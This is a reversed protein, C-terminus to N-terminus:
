PAATGPRTRLWREVSPGQALRFAQCLAGAEVSERLRRETGEVSGLREALFVAAEEGATEDCLGEPVRVLRRAVFPSVELPMAPLRERLWAYTASATRRDTALPVLLYHLDQQKVTGDEWLGLAERVRMPEVVAALGMLATIRQQPTEAAGLADRLRAFLAPEGGRATVRLAAVALDPDVSTPDALWQSALVALRARAPADEGLWALQEIARQRLLREEAPESPSAEWSLREVLPALQERVFRAYGPRAPEGVVRDLAVLADLLQDWVVREDGLSYEGVLELYRDATLGGSQVLAWTNVLLGARETASLEGAFRALDHLHRPRMHFRYYGAEGANPHLWRPCGLRDLSVERPDVGVLECQVRTHAGESADPSVPAEDTPYRLCVPTKWGKAAKGRPVGAGIPRAEHQSLLVRPPLGPACDLQEVDVRPVGTQTVFGTAVEGVPLGSARELARFLDASTASGWAHASVYERVGRRFPEPGVWHELMALVSEGKAYTIGDFAEHAESSTRVPQRVSRASQMWDLGMVWHKGRLLDTGAGLGPDWTDLVKRALWNAFAENLWLDDWWALTVLDGFWMHALEHAVVQAMLRRDRTSAREADHLVIEERFTVLGVNEMAGPGFNPVALLDLKGYPYPVGFYETLLALHESAAAAAARGLQSKGPVTIVRIPVPAAPGEYVELPGVAFALLYTPMPPTPVFRHEVWGPEVRSASQEATNAFVADAEPATIRLSFPVKFAPEDFCPLVRRADTPQLQTFLFRKGADEVRYLGDLTESLPASYTLELVVRGRPLLEGFGLVLEEGRGEAHAADRSTVSAVSVREGSQVVASSVELGRGHLVIVDTPRALALSIRAQGSFRTANPDVRLALDYALPKVGGPLRGDERPPPARRAAEEAGAAPAGAPNLPAAACAGVLLLLALLLLAM